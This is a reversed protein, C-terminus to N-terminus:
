RCPPEQCLIAARGTEIDAAIMTMATALELFRSNVQDMVFGKNVTAGTPIHAFALMGLNGLKRPFRWYRTQM